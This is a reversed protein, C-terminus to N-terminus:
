YTIVTLDEELVNRRGDHWAEKDKVLYREGMGKSVIKGIIKKRYNENYRYSVGNAKLRENDRPCIAVGSVKNKYEEFFEESTFDPYKGTNERDVQIYVGIQRLNSKCKIDKSKQRAVSITATIIVALIVVIAVVVLLELVSWGIKHNPKFIKM